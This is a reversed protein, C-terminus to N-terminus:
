LMGPPLRQALEALRIDVVVTRAAKDHLSQRKRDWLPWIADIFFGSLALLIVGRITARGVRVQGGGKEDRVAIGYLMMGLTQGRRSSGSFTLYFIWVLASVGFFSIVQNTPAPTNTPSALVAPFVQLGFERLVLSLIFFDVLLAFIRKVWSALPRGLVDRPATKLGRLGLPLESVAPGIQSPTTPPPQPPQGPPTGPSPVNPHEAPGPPPPPWLPVPVPPPPLGADQGATVDDSADTKAPDEPPLDLRRIDSPIGGM